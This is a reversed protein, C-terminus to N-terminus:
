EEYFNVITTISEFESDIEIKSSNMTINRSDDIGLAQKLADEYLKVANSVDRKLFNKKLGFVNLIVLRASKLNRYKSLIPNDGLIEQILSRANEQYNKVYDPKYLWACIKGGRRMARPKLYENESIVEDLEINFALNDVAM